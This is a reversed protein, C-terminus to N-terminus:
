QAMLGVGERGDEVEEGKHGRMKTAGDPTDLTIISTFEIVGASEEERVDDLELHQTGIGRWMVVLDLAHNIDYSTM